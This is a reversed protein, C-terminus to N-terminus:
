ALGTSEPQLGSKKVRFHMEERLLRVEARETKLMVQTRDLELELAKIRKRADTDLELELAKIRKRADTLQAQTAALQAQLTRRQPRDSRLRPM